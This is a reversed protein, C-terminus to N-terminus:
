QKVWLEKTVTGKENMTACVYTGSNLFSLNLTNTANVLYTTFVKQGELSYVVFLAPESTQLNLMGNASPNPYIKGATTANAIATQGAVQTMRFDWTGRGWTSFRVIYDSEVFEVSMYEQVPATLGLLSYWEGEAMVYVYPGADTAAFLFKEAPDMCMEHVATEPLPSPWIGTFTVGGDTSMHVADTSYGSGGLFVLGPTLRSAFIDAGYIWDGEPGSFAATMTWNAGADESHFFKGNETAVYWKSVDLPTVGIASINAGSASNFDFDFQTAVADFGGNELKILHSGTGGSIEGGGVLIYDAAPDPAMETPVIWDYNPMDTGAVNYWYAAGADTMANAYYSFDGGPYQAWVAQGDNSFQMQGYDGSIVQECNATTLLTGQATRQFGQDQTGGFFYSANLPSTIVDYFQGVNLNMMGINETTLLNDYSVSIGGHNPIVTFEDGNSKKFPAISMIDAHIKGPVDDYYEWWNNVKTFNVGGDTSRWLEMEGMYLVDPDNISVVVGAEWSSVPLTSIYGFSVGGNNSAFLEQNDMLVYLMTDTATMNATLYCADVGNLNLSTAVPTLSTGEFIYSDDNGDILYARASNYPAALSAFNNGSTNFATVVTWSTGDNVSYALRNEYSALGFNYANYLYVLTGSADNLRVLDTASGYGWDSTFGSAQTWDVGENDSYFIGHGRAAVIRLTGGPLYFVKLVRSAFQIDENLPTWAGDNLDGKWLVGGDSIAYLAETVPDFDTVQVNGALNNSGREVWEAEIAGNAFVEPTKQRRMESRWEYIARFNAENVEKWDPYNGHILDFYNRKKEGFGEEDQMHEYVQAPIPIGGNTHRSRYVQEVQNPAGSYVMFGIVSVVVVGAIILKM